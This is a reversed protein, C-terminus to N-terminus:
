KLETGSLLGEEFKKRDKEMEEVSKRFSWYFLGGLLFICVTLSKFGFIQMIYGLPMILLGEGFANGLIFNASNQPSVQFGEDAPLAIGLAFVGSVFAGLAM